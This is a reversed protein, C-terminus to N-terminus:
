RWDTADFWVKVRFSDGAADDQYEDYLFTFNVEDVPVSLCVNGTNAGGRYLDADLGNPIVGCSNDGFPLYQVNHSGVLDFDYRGVSEYEDSSGRANEVDLTWMVFKHGDAPPDNFRNEAQIEPWADTDIAVIQMDLIGAQFEEGYQFAKSRATGDRSPPTPSPAATANPTPDPTPIPDSSFYQDIVNFLEGIDVKGNNNSDVCALSGQETQATAEHTLILTVLVTLAMALVGAMVYFPLIRAM